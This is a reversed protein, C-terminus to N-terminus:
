TSLFFILLNRGPFGIVKKTMNKKGIRIKRPDVSNTNIGLQNLFSKDIKHVGTHDIFFQYWSGIAMESNQPQIVSINKTLDYSYKITFSEIRKYNDNIKVIPSFELYSYSKERSKSTKLKIEIKNKLPINTLVPYLSIDFNSYKIDFVQVSKENINNSEEWQNVLKFEQNIVLNENFNKTDPILFSKDATVVRKDNSWEVTLSKTQGHLLYFNFILFFYFLFRM